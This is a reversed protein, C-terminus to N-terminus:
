GEQNEHHEFYEVKLVAGDSRVIMGVHNYVTSTAAAAMITFFKNCATNYDTYTNNIIGTVGDASTQMETVIYNFDM